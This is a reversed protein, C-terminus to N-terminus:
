IFRASGLSWYASTRFENEYMQMYQMLRQMQSAKGAPTDKEQIFEDASMNKGTGYLVLKDMDGFEKSFQKSRIAYNNMIWGVAQRPNQEAFKQFQSDVQDRINQVRNSVFNTLERKKLDDDLQDYTLNATTFRANERWSIFDKNMVKSANELVALHTNPNKAQRTSLLKWKELGRRTLEQEIEKKKVRTDFGTLQSMIPNVKQVPEESFGDYLPVDNKGNFSSSYQVWDFDPMFRTARQVFQSKTIDGEPEIERTYPSPAADVNFQGQIDRITALPMTFPAFIDSLWKTTAESMSGNSADNILNKATSLSFGYENLGTAIELSEGAVDGFTKNPDQGKLKKAILDGIFFHAMLPGFARSMDVVDGSV